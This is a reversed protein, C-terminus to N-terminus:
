AIIVVNPKTAMRINGPVSELGFIQDVTMPPTDCHGGEDWPNPFFIKIGRFRIFPYVQADTMLNYKRVKIAPPGFGDADIVLEVNEFAQVTKKDEIMFPVGDRVNADGFQHVILIKKTKLNETRAYDDLLKQTANVQTAKVTGIPIGPIPEGPYVHFEPDIAVHVNDYKLYGRDIMRKVQAVPDSRGLQTDLVVVWGRQAAPKIYDAVIDGVTGELYYLCDGAPQECPVAMAYILHVGAIVGKHDNVKKIQKMWPRIDKSMTDFNKYTGLRGLIPAVDFARGYVSLLTNTQLLGVPKGANRRQGSAFQARSRIPSAQGPPTGIGVQGVALGVAFLVLPVCQPISM